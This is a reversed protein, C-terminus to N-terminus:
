PEQLTAPRGGLAERIKELMHKLTFPKPVFTVGPQSTAEQLSAYDAYGSMFIIGLDPYLTSLATALIQGSGGPMVIDTVLLDLKQGKATAIAEQVSAAELVRYGSERVYDALLARLSAEDEVILITESGNKPSLAKGLAPDLTTTELTRPFYVIFETGKKAISHAIVHGSGQQVIGYVTALGMGTGMEKTTFFPEFIQVQTAEDM